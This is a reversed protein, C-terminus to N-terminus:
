VKSWRRAASRMSAATCPPAPAPGACPPCRLSPVRLTPVLFHAVRDHRAGSPVLALAGTRRARRERAAAVLNASLMQFPSPNASLSRQDADIPQRPMTPETSISRMCASPSKARISGTNKLVECRRRCAGAACPSSRAGSLSASRCRARQLAAVDDDGALAAVVGALHEGLQAGGAPVAVPDVGRGVRRIFSSATMTRSGTLRGTM